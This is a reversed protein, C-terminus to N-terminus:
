ILSAPFGGVTKARRLEYAPVARHSFANGHPRVVSEM